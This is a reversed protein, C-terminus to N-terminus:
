VTCVQLLVEVMGTRGNYAAVHLPTMKNKDTISLLADEKLEMLKSALYTRGEQAAFYMVTCGNTNRLTVDIDPHALLERFVEQNDYFVAYHLATSGRNNTCNVNAKRALLGSVARHYGKKSAIILMSNGEGDIKLDVECEPHQLLYELVEEEDAASVASINDPVFASILAAADNANRAEAIQLATKGAGGQTQAVLSM